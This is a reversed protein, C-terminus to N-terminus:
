ALQTAGRGRSGGDDLTAPEATPQRGVGESDRELYPGRGAADAYHDVGQRGPNAEVCIQAEDLEVKGAPM